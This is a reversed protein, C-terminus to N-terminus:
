GNYDRQIVYNVLDIAMQDETNLLQEATLGNLVVQKFDYGHQEIFAKWGAVCGNPSQFERVDQIRIIITSYDM